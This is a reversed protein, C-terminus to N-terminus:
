SSKKQNKRAQRRAQFQEDALRRATQSRWASWEDDTVAYDAQRPDDVPRSYYTRTHKKSQRDLVLWLLGGLAVGPVAFLVAFFGLTAMLTYDESTGQIGVMVLAVLVGLLAGGVLFPAIKPARRFVVTEQEPQPSGDPQDPDPASQPSVPSSM